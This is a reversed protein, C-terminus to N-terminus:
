GEQTNEQQQLREQLRSVLEEDTLLKLCGGHPCADGRCQRPEQIDPLMVWERQQYPGWRNPTFPIAPCYFSMLPRKLADALHIPGTSSALLLQSSGVVQLMEELSFRGTRNLVREESFGDRLDEAVPSDDHSGTILVAWDTEQLLTQILLRYQHKSLNPASGGSGPHLVAYRVPLNERARLAGPVRLNKAFAFQAPKPEPLLPKLLELNYDTEHRACQSRHQRFTDTFLFRYWRDASGIRQPIGAWKLPLALEPRPHFLVAATIQQAKLESALQKMGKWGRHREPDYTLIQDIGQYHRLLPHTYTRALFSLTAEPFRARLATVAPLTLVTDGIRDTRVLLIHLDKM